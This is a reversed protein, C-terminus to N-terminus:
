QFILNKHSFSPLLIKTHSSVTHHTFWLRLKLTSLSLRHLLMLGKGLTEEDIGILWKKYFDEPLQAGIPTDTFKHKSNKMKQILSNVEDRFEALKEHLQVATKTKVGHQPVWYASQPTM